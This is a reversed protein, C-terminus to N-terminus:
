GFVRMDISNSFRFVLTEFRKVFSLICFTKHSIERSHLLLNVLDTEISFLLYSSHLFLQFLKVGLNNPDILDDLRFKVRLDRVFEVLVPIQQVVLWAFM